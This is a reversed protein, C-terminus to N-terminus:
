GRVKGASVSRVSIRGKTYDAGENKFSLIRRLVQHTKGLCQSFPLCRGNVMLGAHNLTWFSYGLKHWMQAWRFCPSDTLSLLGCLFVYHLIQVDSHNRVITLRAVDTVVAAGWQISWPVMSCEQGGKLAGAEFSTVAGTARSIIVAMVQTYSDQWVQAELLELIGEGDLWWTIWSFDHTHWKCSIDGDQKFSHLVEKVTNHMTGSLLPSVEKHRGQWAPRLGVGSPHDWRLLVHQGQVQIQRAFSCWHELFGQNEWQLRGSQVTLFIRNNYLCHKFVPRKHGSRPPPWTASSHSSTAVTRKFEHSWICHKRRHSKSAICGTWECAPVRTWCAACWLLACRNSFSGDMRCFLSLIGHSM